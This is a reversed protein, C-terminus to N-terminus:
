VFQTQDRGLPRPEPRGQVRRPALEERGIYLPIVIEGGRDDSRPAMAMARAMANSVGREIGAVIQDNNAVATRGGMKGVM